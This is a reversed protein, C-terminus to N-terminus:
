RKGDTEWPVESGKFQKWKDRINTITQSMVEYPMNKIEVNSIGSSQYFSFNRDRIKMGYKEPNDWLQTGPYAILPYFDAFELKNDMAFQLTKYMTEITAGPLNMIFSGRIALGLKHALKIAYTSQEVTNHKQMLKLVNNDAHELGFSIFDLGSEKMKELLETDVRDTRTTVRYSINTKDNILRDALNMTRKRDMTFCDDLFFLSDYGQYKLDNIEEMTRDVSQKRHVPGLIDKTCFFCNFSCSRSSLITATRKGFQNIGYNEPSVLERAPKALLDLNKEYPYQVIKDKIDGDMIDVMAREGEGRVVYDFDKTLTEPLVTAHPGGAVLKTNPRNHKLHRAFQTAWNFYPTSITMGIHTPNIARIKDGLTKYSDHNLDSVGVRYGAQELAGAVYLIGLPPRDGAEVLFFQEPPSILLAKQEKM